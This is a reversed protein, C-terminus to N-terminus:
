LPTGSTLFLQRLGGFNQTTFEVAVAEPVFASSSAAAAWAAQWQGNILYTLRFDSVGRMIVQDYADAEAVGDVFPYARRILDGDDLFYAVRQLSSRPQLGGPNEWGDRVLQIVPQGTTVAAVSAPMRVGYSDRATRSVMQAFDAKMLANTIQLDKIAQNVDGAQEKATLSQGLIATGALSLMAFVLLTVLVEVLTFGASAGIM